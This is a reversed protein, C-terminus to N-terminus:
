IYLKWKGVEFVWDMERGGGRSAWCKIQCAVPQDDVQIGRGGQELSQFNAKPKEWMRIGKEGWWPESGEWAM